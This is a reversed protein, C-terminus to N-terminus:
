NYNRINVTSLLYCGLTENMVFNKIALLEFESYNTKLYVLVNTGFNSDNEPKWFGSDIGSAWVILCSPPISYHLNLLTEVWASPVILRWNTSSRLFISRNREITMDVNSGLNGAQRGTDKSLM